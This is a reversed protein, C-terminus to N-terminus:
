EHKDNKRSCTMSFIRQRILHLNNGTLILVIAREPIKGNAEEWQIFDSKPVDYNDYGNNSQNRVDLMIGPGVLDKLPIDDVADGDKYYQRPADIHTGLHENQQFDAGELYQGKIGLFNEELLTVTRTFPTVTPWGRANEDQSHTLDVMRDSNLLFTYPGPMGFGMEIALMAFAIPLIVNTNAFKM